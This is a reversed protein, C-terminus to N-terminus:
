QYKPAMVTKGEVIWVLVTGIFTAGDVNFFCREFGILGSSMDLNVWGDGGM